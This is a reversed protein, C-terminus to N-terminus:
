RARSLRCDRSNGDLGGPIFAKRDIADHRIKLTQGVGGLIVEQSAVVGPLRVAHVHINGIALGQSVGERQEISQVMPPSTIGALCHIYEATRIATGSPADAKGAHHYEVIAVHKLYRAAEAAFKMKLIAGISFNPALLVGLGKDAALGDIVKKQEETIGTTGVVANAGGELINIINRYIASPHTFDVVIDAHKEQIVETLGHSRGTRAVLTMDHADTMGQIVEQGM